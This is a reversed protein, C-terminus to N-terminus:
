LNQRDQQRALQYVFNIGLIQLNTAKSEETFVFTHARGFGSGRIKFNRVGFIGEQWLDIVDGQFNDTIYSYKLGAPAPRTGGTGPNVPSEAYLQLTAYKVRKYRTPEEFNFSKSKLFCRVTEPVTSEGGQESVADVLRYFKPATKAFVVYFPANNVAAPVIKHISAMSPTTGTSNIPALISKSETFGKVSGGTYRYIMTTYTTSEWYPSCNVKCILFDDYISITDNAANNRVRYAFVPTIPDSIRSLAVGDTIWLGDLSLFYVLGKSNVLANPGVCGVDPAVQRITWNEPSDTTYIVHISSNKFVLIRDAITVIGTIVEGDGEAIAVYMPVAGSLWTLPDGAACYYVRSGSIAFLRNDKLIMGICNTPSGAILTATSGTTWEYIGGAACIYMKLKWQVAKTASAVGTIGVHNTFSTDCHYAGGSDGAYFVRNNEFGVAQGLYTFGFVASAPSDTSGSILARFPRKILEGAQGLMFENAEQLASDPILEPKSALVIGSFANVPAINEYQVPM